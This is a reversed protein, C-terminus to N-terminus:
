LPGWESSYKFIKMSLGPILRQVGDVQAIVKTLLHDLEALDRAVVQIELDSSGIAVSVTIVQDIRALEEGVERAPRGKVQVGVAAMAQYGMAKLDLMAVVRFVNNDELRRMRSRVTAENVGILRALDRNSIRGSERLAQIIREDIQDLSIDLGDGRACLPRARESKDANQDPPM